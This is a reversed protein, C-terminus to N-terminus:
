PPPPPPAGDMALQYAAWVDVRGAGQTNPDLGLDIAAQRFIEKVQAPTLAPNAALLLAAAGAAHPTAMSTGSAQTYSADVPTGMSTGSARAAVINVGPFLVDPKTRGDATPGRSSFNAVADNDDSAGVTIVDAACGPSGVTRASPGANGAAVCVVVGAAVANNCLVSLADTGDCSFSSGLSLNIVHAGEDVAWEVGAMVDSTRGSGDGRLVKAALLLAEPAVGVFKGGSAAGSGAAISAVHTGHGHNDAAGEGTFDTMAVIRGAFDPHNPDIGTDVVAIKVGAGRVGVDWVQPAKIKPVSVDLCTHVEEDYWIVEVDPDDSLAAVDAPTMELAVAPVLRYARKASLTQLRRTAADTERYKCIVPLRRDTRTAAERVDSVGTEAQLVAQLRPHIKEPNM